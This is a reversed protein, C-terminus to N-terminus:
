SSNGQPIHRRTNRLFEVYMDSSRAAEMKLTSSYVLCSVLMFCTALLALDVKVLSCPAIDWFMSM